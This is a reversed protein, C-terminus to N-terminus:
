NLLAVVAALGQWGRLKIGYTRLQMASRRSAAPVVPSDPSPIMM